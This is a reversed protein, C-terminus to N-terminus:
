SNSTLLHACVERCTHMLTAYSSRGKALSLVLLMNDCLTLFRKNFNKRTRLHHRVGMVLARGELRLIDEYTHFRGRCILAWDECHGVDAATIREFTSSARTPLKALPGSELADDFDRTAPVTAEPVNGDFYGVDALDAGLLKSSFEPETVDSLALDRAAIAGEIRFRWREASSCLRQVVQALM